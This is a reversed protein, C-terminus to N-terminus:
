SDKGFLLYEASTELRHSLLQFEKLSLARLGREVCRLSETSVDMIEAIQGRSLNLSERRNRVREGVEALNLQKREMSRLGKEMGWRNPFVTWVTTYKLHM